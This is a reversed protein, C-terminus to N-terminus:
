LNAKEENYRLNSRLIYTDVVKPKKAGKLINKKADALWNYGTTEVWGLNAKRTPNRQALV